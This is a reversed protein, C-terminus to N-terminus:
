QLTIRVSTLCASNNNNNDNNDNDDDDYKVDDDSYSPLKILFNWMVTSYSLDTVTMVLTM